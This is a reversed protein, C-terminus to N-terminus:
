RAGVEPLEVHRAVAVVEVNVMQCHRMRGSAFMHTSGEYPKAEMVPSELAEMWARYHQESVQVHLVDRREDWSLGIPLPLGLNGVVHVLGILSKGWASADPERLRKM